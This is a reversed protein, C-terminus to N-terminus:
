FQKKRACAIFAPLQFLYGVGFRGLLLNENQSKGITRTRMSVTAVVIVAVVGVVIDIPAISQFVSLM